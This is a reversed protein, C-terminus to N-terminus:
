MAFCQNLRTFIEHRHPLLTTLKRIERLTESPHYTQQNHCHFKYHRNKIVSKMRQPSFASAPTAVMFFSISALSIQTNTQRQSCHCDSARSLAYQPKQRNDRYPTAMKTSRSLTMIMFTAVLSQSVCRNHSQISSLLLQLM